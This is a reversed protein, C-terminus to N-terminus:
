RGGPLVTVASTTPIPVKLAQARDIEYITQAIEERGYPNRTILNVVIQGQGGRPEPTFVPGGPDASGGASGGGRAGRGGGFAGAGNEAAVAAHETASAFALAAQPLRMSALHGLGEAFMKRAHQASQRAVEFMLIRSAVQAAQGLGRLAKSNSDLLVRSLRQTSQSARRTTDEYLAQKKRETAAVIEAETHGRQRMLEAEDEWQARKADLAGAATGRGAEFNALTEDRRAKELAVAAETEVLRLKAAQWDHLKAAAELQRQQLNHIHGESDRYQEVYQRVREAYELRVEGMQRELETQARAAVGLRRYLAVDEKGGAFRSSATVQAALLAARAEETYGRVRDAIQRRREEGRTREEAAMDTRLAAERQVLAELKAQAESLQEMRNVGRMGRWMQEWFDGIARNQSAAEQEAILRSITQRTAELDARVSRLGSEGKLGGVHERFVNSLRVAEDSTTRFVSILTSGISVLLGIGTAAFAVKASKAVLGIAFALGSMAGAAAQGSSTAGEAASSLVQMNQAGQRLRDSRMAGMTASVRATSTATQQAVRSLSQLETATQQLAATKKTAEIVLAIREDNTSM